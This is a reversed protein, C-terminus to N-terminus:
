CSCKLFMVNSWDKAQLHLVNAYEVKTPFMAELLWTLYIMYILWHVQSPQFVCKPMRVTFREYGPTSNMIVDDFPIMKRTVPWKHPSNMPWRHIGWVFVLSASGQHKRQYRGSHATSYVITPSTIQSSMTGMIADCYNGLITKIIIITKITITIMMMIIMIIMIIIIIIIIMMIM